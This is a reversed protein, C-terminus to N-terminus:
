GDRVFNTFDCCVMRVQLANTIVSFKNLNVIKANTRVPGQLCNGVSLEIHMRFSTRLVQIKCSSM